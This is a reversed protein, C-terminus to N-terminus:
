QFGGVCDFGIQALDEGIGRWAGEFVIEVLSLVRLGKPTAM